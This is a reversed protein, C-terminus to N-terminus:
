IRNFLAPGPTKSKLKKENRKARKVDTRIKAADGVRDKEAMEARKAIIAGIIAYRETPRMAELNTLWRDKKRKIRLRDHFDNGLFRYDHLEFPAPFNMYVSEIVVSGARNTTQFDERRWGKLRKDYLPCRYHSIMVRCPVALLLDLLQLHGPPGDLDGGDHLLEHQYIRGPSSRSSNLYPPDLYILTRAPDNWAWFQSSATYIDALADFADSNFVHLTQDAANIFVSSENNHKHPRFPGSELIGLDFCFARYQKADLEYASQTAAPLKRRLIAGSGLFFEAYHDSHPPMMSIIKQYVGSGNKGGKYQGPKSM